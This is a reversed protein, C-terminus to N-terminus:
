ANSSAGPSTGYAVFSLAASMAADADARAATIAAPPSTALGIGISSTVEAASRAGAEAQQRALRVQKAMDQTLDGVSDSLDRAQGLQQDAGLLMREYFASSKAGISSARQEVLEPLTTVKPELVTSPEDALVSPPLPSFTVIAAAATSTAVRAAVSPVALMATVHPLLAATVCM